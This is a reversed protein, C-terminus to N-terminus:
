CTRLTLITLTKVHRSRRGMENMALSHGTSWPPDHHLILQPTVIAFSISSSSWTGQRTKPTTDHIAESQIYWWSRLTHTFITMLHKLYKDSLKSLFENNKKIRSPVFDGGERGGTSRGDDWWGMGERAWTSFVPTWSIRWAEALVLSTAPSPVVDPGGPAPRGPARQPAPSPRPLLFGVPFFTHFPWSFWSNSLYRM